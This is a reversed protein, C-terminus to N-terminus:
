AETQWVLEKRKEFDNRSREFSFNEKTILVIEKIDHIGSIVSRTQSYRIPDYPVGEKWEVVYRSKPRGKMPYYTADKWLRLVGLARLKKDHIPKVKEMIYHRLYLTRKQNALAQLALGM